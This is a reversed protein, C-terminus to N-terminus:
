PTEMHLHLAFCQQNCMGRRVGLGFCSQEARRRLKVSHPEGGEWLCVSGESEMERDGKADTAWRKQGLARGTTTATTTSVEEGGFGVLM